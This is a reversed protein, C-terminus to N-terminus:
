VKIPPIFFFFLYISVDMYVRHSVSQLFGFCYLFPFPNSHYQTPPKKRTLISLFHKVLLTVKKKREVYLYPKYILKKLSSFKNEM